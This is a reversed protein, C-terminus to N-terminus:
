RVEPPTPNPTAAARAKAQMINAMRAHSMGVSKLLNILTCPSRTQDEEYVIDFAVCGGNCERDYNGPMWCYIEDGIEQYDDPRELDLRTPDDQM